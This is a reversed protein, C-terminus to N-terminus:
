LAGGGSQGTSAFADARDGEVSQVLSLASELDNIIDRPDELGVSLRVLGEHIGLRERDEPAIQSHTMSAPHTILTEAAGLNEALSCLKTSAMLRKGADAGGCLEFALMGGGSSQQKRAVAEGAFGKLFPYHVVAIDPHGNLFSAVEAASNSHRELRMPLTSLGRLTLWADFPAQISGTAGRYLNFRAALEDDQVLIAGGTTADHGEVYKTTSLVEVDAGHLSADGTAYPARGDGGALVPQLVGTLFTNDVVFLAGAERAVREIEALDCVALTPNAPTEAFVIRTTPRVAARVADLDTPDVFDVEVGFPGLVDRLLRVTGGYVVAGAVVHDGSKLSSLFLTTLAALGTKFALVHAAGFLGAMREELATVTPNSCRSYTYGKHEGVATQVYTSTQYIPALIAGTTPDPTRGAHLARTAPEFAQSM